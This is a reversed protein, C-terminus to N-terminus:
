IQVRFIAPPAESFIQEATKGYVYTQFKFRQSVTGSLHINRKFATMTRNERLHRQDLVRNETIEFLKM